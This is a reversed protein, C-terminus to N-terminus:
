SRGLLPQKRPAREALFIKDSSGLEVKAHLSFTSFMDNASPHDAM